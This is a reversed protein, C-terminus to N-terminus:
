QEKPKMQKHSKIIRSIIWKNDTNIYLDILKSFSTVRVQADKDLLRECIREYIPRDFRSVLQLDCCCEIIAKRVESEQDLIRGSLHEIIRKESIPNPKKLYDRGFEIMKIRVKASRDTFRELLTKFLEPREKENLYEKVFMHSLLVAVRNRIKEEENQINKKKLVPCRYCFFFRNLAFM